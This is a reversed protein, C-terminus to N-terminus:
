RADSAAPADDLWQPLPEGFLERSRKLFEAKDGTSAPMLQGNIVLYTAIAKNTLLDRIRADFISVQHTKLNTVEFGSLMVCTDLPEHYTYLSGFHLEGRNLEEVANHGETQAARETEVGVRRCEIKRKLLENGDLAPRSSASSELPPSPVQRPQGGACAALGILGVCFPKLRM